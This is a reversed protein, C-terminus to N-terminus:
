LRSGGAGECCMGGLLARRNEWVPTLFMSYVCIAGFGSLHNISQNISVLWQPPISGETYGYGLFGDM